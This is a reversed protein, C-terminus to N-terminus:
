KLNKRISLIASLYSIRHHKTIGMKKIAIIHKKTGYGVNNEFDYGKCNKAIKKMYKDRTIKAIISALAIETYGEDGKIYSTQDLNDRKIKLGGDLNIKTENVPINKKELKTLCSIICAHISNNIGYKDIHKVSRSSVAYEINNLKRNKRIILYINNRRTLSLRKSDRITNNFYEFKARKSDKLYVACVTVPGALPGRGVEDIGIVPNVKIKRM